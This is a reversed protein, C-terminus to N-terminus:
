SDYSQHTKQDKDTQRNQGFRYRDADNILIPLLVCQGRDADTADAAGSAAANEIQGSRILILKAYDRRAVARATALFTHVGTVQGAGVRVSNRQLTIDDQHPAPRDPIRDVKHILVPDAM